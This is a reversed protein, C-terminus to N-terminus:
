SSISLNPIKKRIKMCIKYSLNYCNSKQINCSETLNTTSLVGHFVINLLILDGIKRHLNRHLNSLIIFSVNNQYHQNPKTHIIETLVINKYKTLKEREYLNSYIITLLKIFYDSHILGYIWIFKNAQLWVYVSIIHNSKKRLKKGFYVYEFAFKTKTNLNKAKM